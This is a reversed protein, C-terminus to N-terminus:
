QCATGPCSPGPLERRMSATENPKNPPVLERLMGGVDRLYEYLDIPKRLFRSAGLKQAQDQEEPSLSSTLIAIPISALARNQKLTALVELGGMRPMNLDLVIVDPKPGTSGTPPSCLEALAEVGDKYHTLQYDIDQATLSEGLLMVDPVNDEIVVVRVPESDNGM